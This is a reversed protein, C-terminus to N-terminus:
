RRRWRAGRGTGIPEILGEDRGPVMGIQRNLTRFTHMVLAAPHSSFTASVFFLTASQRAM